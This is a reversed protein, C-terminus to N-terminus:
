HEVIERLAKLHKVDWGEEFGELLDGAETGMREFGHHFLEVQTGDYLPTLSITWLTPM